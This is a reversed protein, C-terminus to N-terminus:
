LFLKQSFFAGFIGSKSYFLRFYVHGVISEPLDGFYLLIRLNEMLNPHNGKHIIVLTVVDHYYYYGQVHCVM